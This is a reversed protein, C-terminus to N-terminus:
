ALYAQYVGQFNKEAKVRATLQNKKGAETIFKVIAGGRSLPKIETITAKEYQVSFAKATVLIEAGIRANTATLPTRGATLRENEERICAEKSLKANAAEQINMKEGEAGAV